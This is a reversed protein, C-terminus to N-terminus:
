GLGHQAAQFAYAALEDEGEGGVVEDPQWLQEGCLFFAFRGFQM